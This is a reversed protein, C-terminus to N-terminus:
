NSLCTTNKALEIELIYNNFIIRASRDRMLPLAQRLPTVLNHGCMKLAYDIVGSIDSMLGLDNANGPPKILLNAVYAFDHTDTYYSIATRWHLMQEVAEPQKRLAVGLKDEIIRNLDAPPVPSCYFIPKILGPTVEGYVHQKSHRAIQELSTGPYIRGGVTFEIKTSPFKTLIQSIGNLTLTLSDMTEGPLGFVNQLIPTLGEGHCYDLFDYIHRTRYSKLNLKHINDNLGDVTVLLEDIRAQRFLKATRREFPKPLVQTAFSFPVSANALEEAVRECLALPINFESDTIFIKTVDPHRSAISRLQHSLNGGLPWIKKGDIVPDTCYSCTRNCGIKTRIPIGNVIFSYRFRESYTALSLNIKEARRIGFLSESISGSKAMALFNIIEEEGPGVVGAPCQLFASIADPSTSYGSGGLLIPTNKYASRLSNILIAVDALFWRSRVHEGFAIGLPDVPIYPDINRINVCIIEPRYRLTWEETVDNVSRRYLFPFVIESSFGTEFLKTALCDLGFPYHQRVNYYPNAYILLADIQSVM